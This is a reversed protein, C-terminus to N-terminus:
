HHLRICMLKLCKHLKYRALFENREMLSHHKSTLDKRLIHGLLCYHHKDLVYLLFRCLKFFILLNNFGMPISDKGNIHLVRYCWRKRIIYIQQFLILKQLFNDM